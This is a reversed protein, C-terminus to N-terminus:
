CYLRRSQFNSWIGDSVDTLSSFNNGSSTVVGIHADSRVKKSVFVFSVTAGGVVSLFKPFCRSLCNTQLLYVGSHLSIHLIDGIVVRVAALNELSFSHIVNNFRLICRTELCSSLVDVFTLVSWGDSLGKTRAVLTAVIPRFCSRVTCDGKALHGCVTQVAFFKEVCSSTTKFFLLFNLFHINLSVAVVFRSFLFLSVVIPNTVGTDSTSGTFSKM